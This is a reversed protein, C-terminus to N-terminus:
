QAAGTSAGAPPKYDKGIIVIVDAVDQDSPQSKVVGVGLTKAIQQGATEPGRQVVIQTQKYKFNDANKTDVVRFGARILQQAAEGAIGPTGAGNYLIIRTIKDAKSLDVGWWQKLLDAIETRQPEFYTQQGLKIPRVPLPVIATNQKSVATLDRSLASSDGASLNTATKAALLTAANQNQLAQAYATAPVSVYSHFPVSLFNSIAVLSLQPGGSLSDGIREFGHGPVEIFAGDPIALGYVQKTKGDVRLALFGASSGDANTAVFLVNQKSRSELDAVTGAKAAKRLASWRAYSNVGYAILLLVLALALLAGLTVATYYAAQRIVEGTRRFAGQVKERRQERKATKASKSGRKSQRYGRARQEAADQRAKAEVKAKGTKSRPTLPAASSSKEAPATKRSNKPPTKAAAKPPPTRLDSSKARERPTTRRRRQQPTTNRESGAASRSSRAPPKKDPEDGNARTASM